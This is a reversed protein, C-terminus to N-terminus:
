REPRCDSASAAYRTPARRARRALDADLRAGLELAQVVPDERVVGREVRGRGGLFGLRLAGLAAPARASPQEIPAAARSSAPMVAKPTM